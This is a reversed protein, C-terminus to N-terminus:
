ISAIRVTGATEITADFNGRDLKALRTGVNSRLDRVQLDPRREHLHCQRHSSSTDIDGMDIDGM